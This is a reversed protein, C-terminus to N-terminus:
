SNIRSKSMTNLFSGPGLFITRFYHYFIIVFWLWFIMLNVISLPNRGDDFPFWQILCNFANVTSFMYGIVNDWENSLFFHICYMFLILFIASIPGYHVLQILKGSSTGFCMLREIRIDSVCINVYIIVCVCVTDEDVMRIMKQGRQNIEKLSYSVLLCVISCEAKSYDIIGQFLIDLIEKWFTQFLKSHNRRNIKGYHHKM